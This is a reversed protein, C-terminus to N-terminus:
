HVSGKRSEQEKVQVPHDANPQHKIFYLMHGLILRLSIKSSSIYMHPNRLLLFLSLRVYRLCVNFASNGHLALTSNVM